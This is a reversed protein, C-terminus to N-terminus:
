ISEPALYVEGRRILKEIKEWGGSKILVGRKNSKCFSVKSSGSMENGKKALAVGGV